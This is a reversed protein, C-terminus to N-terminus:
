NSPFGIHCLAAEIRKMLSLTIQEWVSSYQLASCHTLHQWFVSIFIFSSVTFSAFSQIQIKFCQQHVSSVRIIRQHHVASANIIHQHHVSSANIVHHHHVSSIGINCQLHASSASIICQTIIHQHHVSTGMPQFCWLYEGFICYIQNRVKMQPKISTSNITVFRSSSRCGVSRCPSYLAIQRKFTPLCLKAFILKYAYIGSRLIQSWKYLALIGWFQM